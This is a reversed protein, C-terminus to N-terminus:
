GGAAETKAKEAAPVEERLRKLGMKDAYPLGAAVGRARLAELEVSDQVGNGDKDGPSPSPAPSPSPTPTPSPAPSATPAPTPAPTEAPKKVGVLAYGNISAFEAAREESIDESVMAGSKDPHPFFQVGSILNSANPLTCIVKM